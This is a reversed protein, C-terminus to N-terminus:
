KKGITFTPKRDTSLKNWNKRVTSNQTAPLVRSVEEIASSTKKPPSSDSTEATSAAIYGNAIKRQMERLFGDKRVGPKQPVVNFAENADMGCAINKLARHLWESVDTPLSEGRQQALEIAEAHAWLRRQRDILPEKKTLDLFKQKKSM